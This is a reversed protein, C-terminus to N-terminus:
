SAYGLKHRHPASRLCIDAKQLFYAAQLAPTAAAFCVFCLSEASCTTLVSCFMFLRCLVPDPQCSLCSESLSPSAPSSRVLVVACQM